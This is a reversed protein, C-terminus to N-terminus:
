HQGTPNFMKVYLLYFTKKKDRLAAAPRCRHGLRGCVSFACVDSTHWHRRGPQAACASRAGSAGRASGGRIRGRGPPASRRRRPCCLAGPACRGRLNAGEQRWFSPILELCLVSVENSGAWISWYSSEAAPALPGWSRKPVASLLTWSVTHGVSTPPRSNGVYGFILSSVQNTLFVFSKDLWDIRM